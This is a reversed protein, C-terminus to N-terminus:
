FLHMQILNTNNDSLFFSAIFFYLFFSHFSLIFLANHFSLSDFHSFHKNNTFFLFELFYLFANLFLSLLSFSLSVSRYLSSVVSLCLSQSVSLILSQPASFCLSVCLLCTSTLTTCILFLFSSFM